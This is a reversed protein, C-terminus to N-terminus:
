VRKEQLQKLFSDLEVGSRDAEQMCARVTVTGGKEENDGVILMYPIKENEARHIKEGLKGLTKDISARVHAKKLQDLIEEAYAANREALPLIKVETEALWLPLIGDHGEILLAIFLELSKFISRKLMVPAQKRGENDLYNLGFSERTALDVGLSSVIWKRQLNDIVEVEITPGTENLDNNRNIYPNVGEKDVVFQFGLENLANRLLDISPGFSEVTHCSKSKHANVIYNYEFGLIKVTKDILQLSSIVENLVEAASCFIHAQDTLFTRSKFLGDLASSSGAFFSESVEFYRIPLDTFHRLRSKYLLAHSPAKESSLLYDEGEIKFKLSSDSDILSKKLFETKRLNPTTVSQVKLKHNESQLFNLLADRVFQGKPLWFISDQCHDDEIKFLDMSFGLLLHESEKAKQLKKLFEKLEKKGACATGTIRIVQLKEFNTEGNKEKIPLSVTKRQIKQLKFAGAVSTDEAFPGTCFDYFKGAKWVQVINDPCNQLEEVKYPQKQHRFMEMANERMMDLSEIEIKEKVLGRMHEEILVAMEQTVPQEILFDYFFGLNTVKGSILKVGPFLEIMTSALVELATQRILQLPITTM